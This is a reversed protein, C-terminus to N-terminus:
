SSCNEGTPLVSDVEAVFLPFGSERDAVVFTFTSDVRFITPSPTGLSLQVTNMMTVSVAIAGNEDVCMETNQQIKFEYLHRQESPIMFSEFDKIGNKRLVKPLHTHTLVIEGTVRFRPLTVHVEKPSLTPNNFKKFVIPWLEEMSLSGKKQKIIFASLSSLNEQATSGDNEKVTTSKIEDEFPIICAEIGDENFYLTSNLQHIAFKTRKPTKTTDKFTFSMEQPTLFAKTLWKLKLAILNIFLISNDKLEIKLEKLLGQTGDKLFNDIDAQNSLHKTNSKRLKKVLSSSIEKQAAYANALLVNKANYEEITTKLHQILKKKKKSPLFRALDRSSKSQLDVALYLLSFLQMFGMPSYVAVNKGFTKLIELLARGKRTSKFIPQDENIRPSIESNMEETNSSTSSTPSPSFSNIENNYFSGFQPETVKEYNTYAPAYIHGKSLDNWQSSSSRSPSNFLNPNTSYTSGLLPAYVMRVPILLPLHIDGM